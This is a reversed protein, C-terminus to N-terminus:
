RQVMRWAVEGPNTISFTDSFTTPDMNTSESTSSYTVDYKAFGHNNGPTTNSGMVSKFYGYEHANSTGNITYLGQGGTGVISLATGGGQTYVDGSNVICAENYTPRNNGDSVFASCTSPNLALQKSRQYTHDHGQVILDVRKSVLLNWLDFGIECSKTATSVCNKHMGVVVWRFSADNKAVDITDRVWNYHRDGASYSWAPSSTTNIKTIGPSILIFRAKTSSVAYDFYYERGYCSPHATLSDRICDNGSGHWSTGLWSTPSPVCNDVINNYDTEGTSEGTDHNGAIIVLNPFRRKFDTCWNYASGQGTNNAGYTLDGMAIFFSPNTAVLRDITKQGNSGGWISGIDGSVGFSFDPVGLVPHLPITPFLFM